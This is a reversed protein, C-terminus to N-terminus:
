LLFPVSNKSLFGGEPPFFSYGLEGKALWPRSTMCNAWLM